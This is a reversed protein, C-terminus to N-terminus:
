SFLNAPMNNIKDLKPTSLVSTKNSNKSRLFNSIQKNIKKFQDISLSKFLASIFLEPNKRFLRCLFKAQVEKGEQELLQDLLSRFRISDKVSM